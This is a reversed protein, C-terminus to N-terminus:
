ARRGAARLRRTTAPSPSLESLREIEDPELSRGEVLATMCWRRHTSSELEAILRMAQDLGAPSGSRLIMALARRRGWGDPFSGTVATVEDADLNAGGDLFERLIRFRAPISRAEALREM